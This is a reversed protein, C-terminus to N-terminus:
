KAELSIICDRDTLDQIDVVSTNLVTRYSNAERRMLSAHLRGESISLGLYLSSSQDHQLHAYLPQLDDQAMCYPLFQEPNPGFDEVTIFRARHSGTDKFAIPAYEVVSSQETTPQKLTAELQEIASIRKSMFSEIHQMHLTELVQEIVQRPPTIMDTM